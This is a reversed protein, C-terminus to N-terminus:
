LDTEFIVMPSIHPIAKSRLAEVSGCPWRLFDVEGRLQVVCLAEVVLGACWSTAQATERRHVASSFGLLTTGGAV